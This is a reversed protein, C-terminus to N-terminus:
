GMKLRIHNHVTWSTKRGPLKVSGFPYNLRRELARNFQGRGTGSRGAAGREDHSSADCVHVITLTSPLRTASMANDRDHM